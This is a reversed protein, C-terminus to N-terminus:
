ILKKLSNITIKTLFDRDLVLNENADLKVFNSEAPVTYKEILSIKKM